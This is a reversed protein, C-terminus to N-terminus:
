HGLADNRLQAQSRNFVEANRALASWRNSIWKRAAANDYVDGEFRFPFTM